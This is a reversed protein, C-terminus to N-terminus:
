YNSFQGHLKKIVEKFMLNFGHSVKVIKLYVIIVQHSLMQNKIYPGVQFNAGLIIGMVKINGENINNHCYNKTEFLIV